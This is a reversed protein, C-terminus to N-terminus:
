VKNQIFRHLAVNDLSALLFYITKLLFNLQLSLFAFQMLVPDVEVMILLVHM